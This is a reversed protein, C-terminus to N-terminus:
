TGRHEASFVDSVIGAASPLFAGGGVAQLVRFAILLEVNPAIACLLSSVTFLVVCGLFLRKRGLDDSLKGAMPMMVTQTLSYGTIVWSIWVLNTNLGSMMEPLGVAVITSDISAMLLALSVVAFIAISRPSVSQSAAADSIPVAQGSSTHTTTRAM